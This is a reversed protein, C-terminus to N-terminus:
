RDLPRLDTSKSSTGQHFPYNSHPTQPTIPENLREKIIESLEEKVESSIESPNDFNTAHLFSHYCM